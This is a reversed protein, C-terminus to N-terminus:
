EWEEPKMDGLMDWDAQTPDHQVDARYEDYTVLFDPVPGGFMIGSPMNRASIMSLAIAMHGRLQKNPEDNIRQEIAQWFDHFDDHVPLRALMVVADWRVHRHPSDLQKILKRYDPISAM